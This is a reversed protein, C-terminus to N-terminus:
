PQAPTGISKSVTPPTTSCLPLIKKGAALVVDRSAKLEAAAYQLATGDQSVAITVLELEKDAKLETAAHQLACGHRFVAVAVLEKDAKLEAAAHQLAHGDQSVAITFMM